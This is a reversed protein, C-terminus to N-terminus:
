SLKVMMAQYGLLELISEPKDAFFESFARDVGAASRYDHCLIIGGACMRPYFFRLCDLTSQYLDVDLHVFSFRESELGEASAPFLGKHFEVPLGELYHRVSDLDCQFDGPRFKASDGSGPDPLGAFTDFLHVTRGGSYEAILRASAGYAVGVEAIAGPLRSTAVVASILQCAEGPDLLL